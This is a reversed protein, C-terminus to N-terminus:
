RVESRTGVSGAGRGAAVAPSTPPGARGSRAAATAPWRRRCRRRPSPEPGAATAAVLLLHVRRARSASSVLVKRTTTPASKIRGDSRHSNVPPFFRLSTRLMIWLRSRAPKSRSCCRHSASAATVGAAAPSTSNRDATITAALPPRSPSMVTPSTRSIRSISCSIRRCTRRRAPWSGSAARPQPGGRRRAWSGTLKAAVSLAADLLEDVAVRDRGVSGPGARRIGARAAAPSRSCWTPRGTRSRTRAEPCVQLSMM